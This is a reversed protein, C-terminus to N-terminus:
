RRRHRKNSSGCAAKIPASQLLTKGDQATYKVKAAPRHACLSRTNSLYGRKGGYLTLRFHGVPADPIVPVTTRLRGGRITETEGQPIVTVQGALIFALHPLGGYGSVAYALGELSAELLPTQDSVTGIPQRGACHTTELETKSCLNGLHAQDIELANPLTLSLARLNDDGPRTTLDFRLSPDQGRKTQKRGGLQTVSIKPAFPLTQCNVAFFPATFSVAAGQDGVGESTTKLESCNTPNLIFGSRDIDVAIQRIRLPVGGVVEPIPQSTAIVHADTPDLDIATRVVVTGYDYPGALAPTIVLISLPAGEFPGALYVAGSVHFPHSGPGAAVNSSGIQSSTPCSPSAQEVRGPTNAAAAIAADPCYSVGHLNALLGPPM